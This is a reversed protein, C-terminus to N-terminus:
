FSARDQHELANEMKEIAEAFLAEKNMGEVKINIRKKGYLVLNMQYKGPVGHVNKIHILIKKVGASNYLFSERKGIEGRTLLIFDIDYDGSIRIDIIDGIGNGSLLNLIKLRSLIGVPKLESDVVIAGKIKQSLMIELARRLNITLSIQPMERKSITMINDGRRKNADFDKKGPKKGAEKAFIYRLVDSLFVQGVVKGFNDIIPLGDVKNIAALKEAKEITDERRLVPFRRIVVDEVKLSDFIRNNILLKLIDYDSVIGIVKKDEDVVPLGGLGSKEMVSIAKNISDKQTILPAKIIFNSVKESGKANKSILDYYVLLGICKKKSIVPLEKIGNSDMLDLADDLKKSSEVTIVKKTMIKGINM